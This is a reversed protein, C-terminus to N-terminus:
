QWYVHSSKGDVNVQDHLMTVSHDTFILITLGRKRAVELRVEESLQTRSFRHLASTLFLYM